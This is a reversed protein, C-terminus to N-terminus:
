AENLYIEGKMFFVAKGKMIVRDGRLECWLEGGRKSLQLAHLDKKNLKESWFPILQSHASGTVPDEDIGAGPAFFRSVFDVEKGPATIILKDIHKKMLTFDPNCNRVDDEQAFEVLMDRHKYVGVFELGGLIDSLNDPYIDLREPKWSPFDMCILGDEMSINLIGSQSSFRIQPKNYDLFNFLVYASALTAHGCLNIELEPTFWRIEYDVDHEASPVFFVTESLNNELAIQQMMNTPLWEGLPVVAAPNGGFPKDTFADVQYITLKM